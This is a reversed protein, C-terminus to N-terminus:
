PFFVSHSFSDLLLSRWNPVHLFAMLWCTKNWRKAYRYENFMEICLISCCLGAAAWGPLTGQSSLNWRQFRGCLAERTAPSWWFDGKAFDIITDPSWAKNSLTFPSKNLRPVFEKPAVTNSLESFKLNSKAASNVFLSSRQPRKRIGAVVKPM